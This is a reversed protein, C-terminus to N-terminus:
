QIRGMEGPRRGTPRLDPCSTTKKLFTSVLRGVSRVSDTHNRHRPLGTEGTEKKTDRSM